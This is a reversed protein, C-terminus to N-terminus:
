LLEEAAAQATLPCSTGVKSGTGKCLGKGGLRLMKGSVAFLTCCLVQLGLVLQLHFSIGPSEKEEEGYGQEGADWLWSKEEEKVHVRWPGGQVGLSPEQPCSSVCGMEMGAVLSSLLFIFPLFQQPPLIRRGAGCLRTHLLAMLIVHQGVREWKGEAQSRTLM